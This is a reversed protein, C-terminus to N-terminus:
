SIRDYNDELRQLTLQFFQLGDDSDVRQVNTIRYQDGTEDEQYEYFTLVAIQGIRPRVAEPWIQIMMDIQEDVGKALYQRTMGVTIEAFSQPEGVETLTYVPMGGTDATNTLNCFQVLGDDLLEQM